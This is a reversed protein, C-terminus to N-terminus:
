KWKLFCLCFQIRYSNKQPRSHKLCSPNTTHTPHPPLCLHYCLFLITESSVADPTQTIRREACPHTAGWNQLIFDDMQSAVYARPLLQFSGELRLSHASVKLQIIKLNSLSTNWSPLPLRIKEPYLRPCSPLRTWLTTDSPARSQDLHNASPLLFVGSSLPGVTQSQGRLGESKIKYCRM